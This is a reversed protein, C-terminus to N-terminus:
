PRAPSPSAPAPGRERPTPAPPVPRPPPSTSVEAPTAQQRDRGEVLVAPVILLVTCIVALILPPWAAMPPSFHRRPRAPATRPALRHERLQAALAPNEYALATATADLTQQEHDNLM